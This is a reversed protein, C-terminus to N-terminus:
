KLKEIKIEYSLNNEVGNLDSYNVRIFRKDTLDNKINYFFKFTNDAILEKEISSHKVTIKKIQQDSLNEIPSDSIYIRWESIDARLNQLTMKESFPNNNDPLLTTVWSIKKSSNDFSLTEIPTTIPYSKSKFNFNEGGLLIENKPFYGFTKGDVLNSDCNGDLFKSQFIDIFGDNNLDKIDIYGSNFSVNYDNYRTYRPANASGDNKYIIIKRIESAQYIILDKLKDNNLDIFKFDWCFRENLKIYKGGFTGNCNGFKIYPTIGAYILDLCGDNNLDSLEQTFSINEQFLNEGSPIIATKETFSGKGDNLFSTIGKLENHWMAMVIDVDNDNDIDGLAFGHYYGESKFRSSSKIRKQIWNGGQSLVVDFFSFEKEIAEPHSVSVFDIIKDGNLDACMSKRSFPQGINDFILSSKDVLKRETKDYLFLKFPISEQESGISSLFLDEFGDNNFDNVIHNLPGGWTNSKKITEFNFFLTSFTGLPKVYQNLNLDSSNVNKSGENYISISNSISYTYNDVKTPFIVPIETLYENKKCSLFLLIITVLFLVKM